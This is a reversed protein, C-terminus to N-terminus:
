QRRIAFELCIFIVQMLTTVHFYSIDVPSQAPVLAMQGYQQQSSARLKSINMSNQPLNYASLSLSSHVKTGAATGAVSSIQAKYLCM